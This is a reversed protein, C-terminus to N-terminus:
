NTKELLYASCVGFTFSKYKLLNFDHDTLIEVLAKGQPFYHMSKTLYNYAEKDKSLLSTALQVYLKVYIKYLVALPGKQPENMEIILFRGGPQLVRNIQGLSQSLRELNRIGFAITVTDFKADEYELEACDMVELKTKQDLQHSKLKERGVNMMEESIDIGRMETPSLLKEALLLMDATGTAIDLLSITRFDNLWSMAKRRWLHALGWSMLNNFFDYDKSITNFMKRLQYTKSERDNYPKVSDNIVEKHAM